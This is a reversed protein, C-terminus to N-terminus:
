KLLGIMRKAWDHRKEINVKSNVYAQINRYKKWRYGMRKLWTRVLSVSLSIKKEKLLIHRVDKACLPRKAEDVIQKIKIKMHHEKLAKGKFTKVLEDMKEGDQAEKLILRM